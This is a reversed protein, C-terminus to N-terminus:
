CDWLELFLEIKKRPKTEKNEQSDLYRAFDLIAMKCHGRACELANPNDHNEKIFKEAKESYTM